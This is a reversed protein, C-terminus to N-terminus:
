VKMDQYVVLAADINRPPEITSIPGNSSGQEGLGATLSLLNTFTHNNPIYGKTKATLYSSYANELDM